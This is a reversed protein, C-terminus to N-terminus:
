RALAAKEPVTVQKVAAEAERRCQNVEDMFGPNRVVVNPAKPERGSTFTSISDILYGRNAWNILEQHTCRLGYRDCFVTFLKATMDDGRWVPDILRGSEKLMRGVPGLKKAYRGFLRAARYNGLNSHHLFGRGGPKLKAALQKVYAEMVEAQVHVLSDFSFVFDISQDPIMDLSKGDNVFYAIHTDTAFRQKCAEICRPSLDVVYMRECYEKLFETCRGFGPAIELITAAPLMHKIRPYLSRHWMRDTGGWAGSWEDGSNSWDYTKNWLELNQEVSPM